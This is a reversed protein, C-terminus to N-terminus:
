RRTASGRRPSTGRVQPSSGRPPDGRRHAPGHEGCRRPHASSTAPTGRISAINGAGAPILGVRVTMTRQDQLTGRVQPSSGEIGADSRVPVSHEGCRRPHARSARFTTCSRGINGAGAPILGVEHLDGLDPQSTGRVQPSSGSECIAAANPMSHEGCRRPHARSRGPRRASGRINGAGAPILRRSPRRAPRAASTGRVQPSSGSGGSWAAPLWDHEGCRRPHAWTVRM